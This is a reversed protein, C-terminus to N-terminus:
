TAILLALMTGRNALTSGEDVPVKNTNNILITSTLYM